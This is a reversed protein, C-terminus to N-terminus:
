AHGAAGVFTLGPAVPSKKPYIKGNPVLPEVPVPPTPVYLSLWDDDNGIEDAIDRDRICM